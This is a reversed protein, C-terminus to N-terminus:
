QWVSLIANEIEEETINQGSIRKVDGKYEAVGVYRNGEKKEYITISKVKRKSYTGDNKVQSYIDNEVDEVMIGNHSTEKKTMDEYIPMEGVRRTEKAPTPIDENKEIGHLNYASIGVAVIAFSAAVSIISKSFKKPKKYNIRDVVRKYAEDTKICNNAKKYVERFM